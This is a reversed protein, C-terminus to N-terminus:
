SDARPSRKAAARAAPVHSAPTSRPKRPAPKRAAPAKASPRRPAPKAAAELKGVREGLAAIEARLADLDTATAPRADDLADRLRGVAHTLEDAIEQARKQTVGARDATATFAQDVAARVADARSKQKKGKGKAV